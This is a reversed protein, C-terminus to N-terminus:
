GWKKPNELFRRPILNKQNQFFWTYNCMNKLTKGVKLSKPTKVRIKPGIKALITFIPGLNWPYLGKKTQPSTPRKKAANKMKEM